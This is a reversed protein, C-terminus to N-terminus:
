FNYQPTAEVRKSRSSNFATAKATAAATQEDEVEYEVEIRGRKNGNDGAKGDTKRKSERKASINQYMAVIQDPTLVEQDEIDVEEEEEDSLQFDEVYEVEGAVEDEEDESL